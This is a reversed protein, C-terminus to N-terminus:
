PRGAEATSRGPFALDEGEDSPPQGVLFYLLDQVHTPSSELGVDAVQEGLQCCTVPRLQHDGPVFGTEVVSCRVASVQKSSPM